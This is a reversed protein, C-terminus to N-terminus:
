QAHVQHQKPKYIEALEDEPSMPFQELMQALAATRQLHTAVRSAREADLPLALAAATARVYALTQEENV